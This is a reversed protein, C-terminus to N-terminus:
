RILQISWLFASQPDIVQTQGTVLGPAETLYGVVDNGQM